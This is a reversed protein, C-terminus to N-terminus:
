SFIVYFNNLHVSLTPSMMCVLLYRYVFISHYLCKYLWFSIGSFTNIFEDYYDLLAYEFIQNFRSKASYSNDSECCNM